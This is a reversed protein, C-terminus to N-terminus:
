RPKHSLCAARAKQDFVRELFIQTNMNYTYRAVFIHINRMIELVDLAESYHAHGPLHVETMTLGYKEHALNRMQEVVPAPGVHAVRDDHRESCTVIPIPGSDITTHNTVEAYVRWDHLTVTTLNYFTTDLYHTIRQKIDITHDFFRLPPVDLFRCWAGM